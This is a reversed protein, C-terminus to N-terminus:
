SQFNLVDNVVAPLLITFVTGEENSSEVSINGYSKKVISHVIALGLGIGRSSDRNKTTFYPDFIHDLIERDIGSGNDAVIIAVYRGRSLGPVDGELIELNRGKLVVRGGKPMCSDANLLLNQLIAKLHDPMIRVAYLGSQFDVALDVGDGLFKSFKVEQCLEPLKVSGINHSDRRTFMLLKATLDKAKTAAELAAGLFDQIKHEPELLRQALGLNGLIASLINNFDHGIGGAMIGISELKRAQLVEAEMEKRKTIDDVVWVFGKTLDIPTSQDVSRGSLMCLIPTGDKKKLYYEAQVTKGAFLKAYYRKGFDRYHEDSIHLKRLSM